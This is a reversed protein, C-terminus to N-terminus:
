TTAGRTGPSNHFLVNIKIDTMTMTNLILDPMFSSKLEELRQKVLEGQFPLFSNRFDFVTVESSHTGSLFTAASRRAEEARM